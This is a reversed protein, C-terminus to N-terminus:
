ASPPPPEPLEYLERRMRLYTEHFAIGSERPFGLGAERVWVPETREEVDEGERTLAYEELWRDYHEVLKGADDLLEIPILHGKELLLDRIRTNGKKLIEGEVFDNRTKWRKFVRSSRDLQMALPGLLEQVSEVKWERKSRSVFAQEEIEQKVQEAVRTLRRDFLLRFLLGLVGAVVGGSIVAALILQPLDTEV